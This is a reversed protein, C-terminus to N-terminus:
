HEKIGHGKAIQNVAFNMLLFSTLLQVGGLVMLGVPTWLLNWGSWYSMLGLSGGLLFIVMGTAPHLFNKM